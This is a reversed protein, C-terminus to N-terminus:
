LTRLIAILSCLLSLVSVTIPIWHSVFFKIRESKRNILYDQLTKKGFSTIRFSNKSISYTAGYDDKGEDFEEIIYSSNDIPYSSGQTKIYQPESLCSLTFDVADIKNSFRNILQAKSVSECANIYKLIVYDNSMLENKSISM